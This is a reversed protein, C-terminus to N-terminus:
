EALRVTTFRLALVDYHKKIKDGLLMKMAVVCVPIWPSSEAMDPMRWRMTLGHQSKGM